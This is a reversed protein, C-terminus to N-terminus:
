ATEASSPRRGRQLPMAKMPMQPGVWRRRRRRDAAVNFCRRHAHRPAASRHDGGVVTPPWTSARGNGVTGPVISSVDGGVVTPPWTSAPTIKVTGGDFSHDGGVVTPPWTSARCGDAREADGEDATEASSPRRGRQLWNGPNRTRFAPNRTEASSPRRGRQLLSSERTTLSFTADGGVVTPPWTSARASRRRTARARRDGGVVTPPWTSAPAARVEQALRHRRRRRRDAAVNFGARRWRRGRRRVRRRRRRDAAVNFCGVEQETPAEEHPRRRRRRDAAVNFCWDAAVCWTPRRRRRRRRDAAVNFRVRYHEEPGNTSVDGGVVTPPWTSARPRANRVELRVRDGGVVTPPWTSARVSRPTHSGCASDGGVVTPPWTSARLPAGVHCPARRLDGGVVTPPWTSAEPGQRVAQPQGATEASSPRRGRQLLCRDLPIVVGSYVDGGVVTPPWTSAREVDTRAHLHDRRRRRRDAAVNFGSGPRSRRPTTSPTEASSPRRGRQLVRIRVYHLTAGHGDGGVVTPPWTSARALRSSGPDRDRRRRRRRDAHLEGAKRRDAEGDGPRRRRRDAAM